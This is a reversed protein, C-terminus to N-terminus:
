DGTLKGSLGSRVAPERFAYFSNGINHQSYNIQSFYRGVISAKGCHIADRHLYLGAKSIAQQGASFQRRATLAVAIRSFRGPSPYGYADM